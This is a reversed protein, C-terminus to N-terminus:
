RMLCSPGTAPGACPWHVCAMIPFPIDPRSISVVTMGAGIYPSGNYLRADTCVAGRDAARQAQGSSLGALLFADFTIYAHEQHISTYMASATNSTSIDGQAPQPSRLATVM